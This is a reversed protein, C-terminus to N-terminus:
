FSVALNPEVLQLQARFIQMIRQLAADDHGEFRAILCPTTNSARILGWGDPYDVRIGDVKVMNGGEFEGREALADMVAFKRADSLAIKIEPTSARVPFEAFIEDAEFPEMSLIELLRAAAYVGDDFGYWRDNFFIHGSLEGGVVAGTERMKAKMLSHGTASLIARGGMSSVLDVVDRTCKVDYVVDAGPNRSLLDRAFLMLLRDPWIIQGQKTVIGIRDGDGDLAVGLDAGTERVKAILAALNEEISPDPHHNPFNGDVEGFLTTVTCGIRDLIEPAVVGAVGNGCDLVIRMPKALVVDNTIRNRYAKLIEYREYTGSMNTPVGAEIHKRLEQIQSGALAVGAIVVKFGNYEPPNHSGTVVVGSQTDLTQTAYYLVPTPVMGIDVVRLGAGILGEILGQTLAESSLRGDRAVVIKSQGALKAMAGIAGGIACAVAPTLEQNVVGRIDYARFIEPAIPGIDAAPMSPTSFPEDSLELDDLDLADDSPLKSTLPASPNAIPTAGLLDQDDEHLHIDLPDDDAAFSATAGAASTSAAPAAHRRLQADYEYFLRDVRQALSEFLPISYRPNSKSRSLIAQLQGSFLTANNRLQRNVLFLSVGGLAAVLLAAIGFGILVSQGISDLLGGHAAPWAQIGWHSVGWNLQIPAGTKAQTDGSAVLALPPSGPFTQQWEFFGINEPLATLQKRIPAFDFAAYITGVVQGDNSVPVALSIYLQEKDRHIEPAPAKGSEAAKMMELQAFSIPPTTKRDKRGERLPTIRVVTATGLAARYNEELAEQAEPTSGQIAQVTQQERALVNLNQQLADMQHVVAQVLQQGDANVMKTMASASLNATLQLYLLAGVIGVAVASGAIAPLFGVALGGLSNGERKPKSKEASPADTQSSPLKDNQENEAPGKGKKGFQFM